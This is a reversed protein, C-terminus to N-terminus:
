SGYCGSPVPPAPADCFANTYGPVSAVTCTASGTCAHVEVYGDPRCNMAAGNECWSGAAPCRSDLGSSASCFADGSGRDICASACATQDIVAGDDCELLTLGDCTWGDDAVSPCHADSAAIACFANGSGRDVCVDCTAVVESYGYDCYLLTTDDACINGFMPCSPDPDPSDSCVAVRDSGSMEDRCTTSACCEGLGRWDRGGLDGEDCTMIQSGDCRSEGEHCNDGCGATTIAVAVALLLIVRVPAHSQL